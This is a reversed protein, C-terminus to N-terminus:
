AGRHGAGAQRRAQRWARLARPASRLLWVPRWLYAILLMLRSESARPWWHRMFTPPPVLKRFAMKIRVTWGEAQAFQELGLALPPPPTGARLEFEVSRVAPLGLRAATDRGVPLLRLGAGFAGLADLREALAAARQWLSDDAIVLARELDELAQGWTPGHHAAHLAVHVALAPLGFTPVEKGAVAVTDASATLLSWALDPDVGVGPLTRHIDVLVGDAPRWWDGAHERWWAPMRQADIRPSFGLGAIIQEGAELQHPAVLLDSDVYSRTDVDRYLWRALAPGKLLVSEVGHAALTAMVEATAADIRLRQAVTEVKTRQEHEEPSEV